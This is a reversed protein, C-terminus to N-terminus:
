KVPPQWLFSFAKGSAFTGEIRLQYPIGDGFKGDSLYGFEIINAGPLLPKQATVVFPIKYDQPAFEILTTTLSVIVEPSANRLNIAITPNEVPGNIVTKSISLVEVPQKKLLTTTTLSSVENTISFQIFVVNGWEDGGVVTYVGPDFYSFQSPSNNNWYGKLDVTAKIQQRNNVSSGSTDSVFEGNNSLPQFKYANVNILPMTCSYIQNQNYLNVPAASAYDAANYNGKYVIIGFPLNHSQCPRLNIILGPLPWRAAIPVVNAAALTNTEDIDIYVTQGPQYAPSDLALSLKLGNEVNNLSSSISNSKTTPITTNSILNV